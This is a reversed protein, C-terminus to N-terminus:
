RKITSCNSAKAMWGNKGPAILQMIASETTPVLRASLNQVAVGGFPKRALKKRVM